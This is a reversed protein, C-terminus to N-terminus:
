KKNNTYYTNIIINQDHNGFGRGFLTIGGKNIANKEISFRIKIFSQSHLDLDDITVDSTKEGEVGTDNKNIRLHKLLGYQSFENNWWSPTYVGRVDSFNGPITITAVNLNNIHITVDTPWSNNSVPFESAIEFSIELLQPNQFDKIFNPIKYEIYGDSLWLLSADVRQSDMFFKPDDTKGIINKTTAIGCTPLVKFDTFHGIKLDTSYVEYAPYIKEPFAIHISDVKLFVMKKNRNKGTGRESDVLGADEMKQIHRTTIATSIGLFSAIDSVSKKEDKLFNIIKLRTLSALSEYVPLSSDSIDLEM